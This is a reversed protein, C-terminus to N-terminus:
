KNRELKLEKMDKGEENSQGKSNNLRETTDSEKTVGHVTAQWAGRGMPNGLCSYQHPNSNGERPARGLGRILGVAGTGGANAPITFFEKGSLRRPLGM